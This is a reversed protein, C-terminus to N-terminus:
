IIIIFYDTCEQPLSKELWVNLRKSNQALQMITDCYCLQERTGEANTQQAIWKGNKKVDLAPAGTLSLKGLLGAYGINTYWKSKDKASTNKAGTWLNHKIEGKLARVTNPPLHWAWLSFKPWNFDDVGKAIRWGALPPSQAHAIHATELAVVQGSRGM